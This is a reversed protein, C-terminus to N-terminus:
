DEKGDIVSDIVKQIISEQDTSLVNFPRTLTLYGRNSSAVVGTTILDEPGKALRMEWDKSGNVTAM